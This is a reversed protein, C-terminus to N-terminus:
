DLLGIAHGYNGLKGLVYNAIQARGAATRWMVEVRIPEGGKVLFLDSVFTLDTGLDRETEFSEILGADLLASGLARNCAGDNTKAIGALGAFAQQTGGGPKSGRKRTGLSNGSLILGLESSALRGLATEDSQTSMGAERMMEHLQEDGYQRAIALITVMDIQLIRADLMTALIGVRDPQEKLEKVINAGTATMLRDIDAYSFGGRTLAAVDGEPDNGAIVLTWMRYQEAKLLHRVTAGNEILEARILALYRGITDAAGALESARQESVGLSFLSAGENLAAVTRVAIEVFRDQPPGTFLEFPEGVGFLAESGLTTAFEALMLTLDDTNTPWVVLTDRGAGSRVFSNIAHMAGEISERAVEGLAERGELILIRAATSPELAGLAAPVDEDGPIRETVVDNTFLGVTNLFTSKGAGSEGRLIMLGGRKAARMDVFRRDLIELADEVPLVILRLAGSGADALGEYRDPVNLDERLPSVPVSM